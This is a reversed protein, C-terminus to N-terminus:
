KPNDDFEGNSSWIINGNEDSLTLTVTATDGLNMLVEDLLDWENEKIQELRRQRYDCFSVVNSMTM